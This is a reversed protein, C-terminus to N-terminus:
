DSVAPKTVHKKEYSELIRYMMHIGYLIVVTFSPVTINALMGLSSFLYFGVVYAAVPFLAAFSLSVVLSRSFAFVLSAITGTTLTVILIINAPVVRLYDATLLTSLATAHIEVGPISRRGPIRKIDGAKESSSGIMVIKGAFTGPAFDNKMVDLFSIYRYSEGPNRYNLRLFCQDDTIIKQDGFKIGGTVFDAKMYRIGRINMWMQLAASASATNYNRGHSIYLPIHRLVGDPDPIYNTFGLAKVSRVLDHNPFVVNWAKIFRPMDGNKDKKGCISLSFDNYISDLPRRRRSESELNFYYGAVVNGASRISDALDINDRTRGEFIIDLFILRAGDAKLNGIVRAMHRRPWHRSQIRGLASLTSDDVDVIVISDTTVQERHDLSRRISFNADDIRNQNRLFPWYLVTQSAGYIILAVIFGFLASFAIEHRRM